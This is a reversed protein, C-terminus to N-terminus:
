SRAPSETRAVIAGRGPRGRFPGVAGIALQSLDLRAKVAHRLSKTALSTKAPRRASCRTSCGDMCDGQNAAIGDDEDQERDVLREHQRVHRRVHDALPDLAVLVAM